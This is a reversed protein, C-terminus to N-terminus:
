FCSVPDIRKRVAYWYFLNLFFENLYFRKPSFRKLTESLSYFDDYCKWPGDKLEALTLGRPQFVPDDWEYEEYRHHIMRGEATLRAMLQTGPRPTLLSFFAM